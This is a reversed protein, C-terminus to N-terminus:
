LLKSYELVYKKYNIEENKYKENLLKLYLKLMQMDQISTIANLFTTKHLLLSKIKNGKIEDNISAMYQFHKIASNKEFDDFIKKLEKEPINNYIGDNVKKYIKKYYGDPDSKLELISKAIEINKINNNLYPIIDDLKM